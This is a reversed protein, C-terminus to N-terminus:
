KNFFLIKQLKCQTENGIWTKVCHVIKEVVFAMIALILGFSWIQFSGLLQEITLAKPGSSKNRVYLYSADIYRSLWHNLMGNAKLYRLKENFVNVLFSNKPFLIGVPSSFIFERCIQFTSNKANLKNFHVIEEISSTLGGKLSSNLLKAQYEPSQDM